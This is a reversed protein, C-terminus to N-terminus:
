SNLFRPFTLTLTTGQKIQSQITITGKNIKVFRGTILMGLTRGVQGPVLEDARDLVYQLETAKDSSMGNGNDAITLQIYTSSIEKAEITLIGENSLHKLANDVLNRIVLEFANRDVFIELSSPISCTLYIQKKSIEQSYLEIVFNIVPKVALYDPQYKGEYSLVWNVMNDLLNRIKHGSQDIYASVQKLSDYRHTTIYYDALEAMEHLTSLPRRLDHAIISVFYDKAKNLRHIEALANQLDRNKNRLKKIVILVGGLLVLVLIMVGIIIYLLETLTIFEIEQKLM